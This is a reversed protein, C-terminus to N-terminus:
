FSGHSVNSSYQWYWKTWIRLLHRKSNLILHASVAISMICVLLTCVHLHSVYYTSSLNLSLGNWHPQCKMCTGPTQTSKCTSLVKIETLYLPLLVLVNLRSGASTVFSCMMLHISGCTCISCHHINVAVHVWSVCSYQTSVPLHSQILLHASQPPLALLTVVLQPHIHVSAIM